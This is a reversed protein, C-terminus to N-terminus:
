AFIAIQQGPAGVKIPHLSQELFSAAPVPVSKIPPLTSEPLAM